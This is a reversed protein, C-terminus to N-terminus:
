RALWELARISPVFFYGGGRMTVFRQTFAYRRRVPKSPVTFPLTMEDDERATSVLPDREDYLGAFKTNNVWTQQIFEFQRRISVNLAIFILGRDVNGEALRAEIEAPPPTGYPRGRRLLRHRQVLQLSEEPSRPLMDRPNARRIHAGIPCSLGAPDEKAFNFKERMATSGPDSVPYRVLPAGSPWRGVISSALKVADDGGNEVMWRWFGATDQHLKRYVLYTGNRGIDFNEGGRGALPQEPMEAYANPHGLLFEGAPVEDCDPGTPHPSGAIHPQSIGDRFGFHERVPDTLEAADEHVIRGGHEALNGVVRERLKALGDATKGFLLLLADIPADPGGFDWDEPRDGNVHARQAASMGLSFERPFTRIDTETLGLKRLGTATFAVHARSADESAHRRGTHIGEEGLMSALFPRGGTEGLVVHVYKTYRLKKYGFLVVGQIDRIDLPTLHPVAM